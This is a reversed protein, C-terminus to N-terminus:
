PLRSLIEAGLDVFNDCSIDWDKDLGIGRRSISVIYSFVNCGGGGGWLLLLLLLNPDKCFDVLRLIAM